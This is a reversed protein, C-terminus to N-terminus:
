SLPDDIDFIVMWIKIIFLLIALGVFGLTVYWLIKYLMEFEEFLGRAFFIIFATILSGFACKLM